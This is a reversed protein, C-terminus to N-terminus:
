SEEELQKVLLSARTSHDEPKNHTGGPRSRSSKILLNSLLLIKHKGDSLVTGQAHSELHICSDVQRLHSMVPRTSEKQLGQAYFKVHM